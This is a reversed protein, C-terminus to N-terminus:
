TEACSIDVSLNFEYQKTQANYRWIKALAKEPVCLGVDGWQETNIPNPHYSSRFVVKSSSDLISIEANYKVCDEQSGHMVMEVSYINSLKRMKLFFLRSDYERQSTPWTLEFTKGLHEIPLGITELKGIKKLFKNPCSSLHGPVSAFAVMKGCNLGPCCVLRHECQEQHKKYDRFHVMERCDALECEHEVNELVVTALLSRIGGM